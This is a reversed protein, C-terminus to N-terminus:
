GCSVSTVIMARDYGVTVRDARYDMTMASDPPGWRLARAGTAALVEAGLDASAARGIFSQGAGSRCVGGEGAPAPSPLTHSACGGLLAVLALPALARPM